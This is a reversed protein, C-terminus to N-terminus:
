LKLIINSFIKAQHSRKFFDVNLSQNIDTNLKGMIKQKTKKFIFKKLETKTQFAFGLGNKKILEGLISNDDPIVLIKRKCEIYNYTKAYIAHYNEDTFALLFDSEINKKSADNKSLRETFVIAKSFEKTSKKIRKVQSPYYNLGIFRLEFDNISIKNEAILESLCIILFEVRQGPTLTGTHTLILKHNKVEEQFAFYNWFGNYICAINKKHFKQLNDCLLPDVSSILNVNSMYKKELFYEHKRIIKNFFSKNISTVHDFFWGDRFDAIFKVNKNLKKLKYGYKFLINPEGTTIIFDINNNIIYRKATKFLNSHQDFFTFHFALIKYLFTLCKRLFTYKKIGFKSILKEPLILKHPVKIIEGETTKVRETTKKFNSIKKEPRNAEDMWNKTIVIPEIGNKKFYLFWSYPREAAISNLPPFDNCLILAKPNSSM